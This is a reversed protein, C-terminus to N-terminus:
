PRSSRVVPYSQVNGRSLPGDVKAVIAGTPDKVVLTFGDRGRGPEGHDAAIAEFTYGRHGNWSGVGVVRVTDVASRAGRTPQFGPDDSFTVTTMSTATFHKRSGSRSRQYDDDHEGTVHSGFDADDDVACHRPDSVWYELRGFDHDRTQSVRFAFHHHAGDEIVFGVGFMRGDPAADPNVAQVTVSFTGSNTNGAVDTATCTVPTVGVPFTSGSTPACSSAAVGSGDDSVSPSAYAVVAGNASTQQVTMAAPVAISPATSDVKILMMNPAEQNNAADVSFFVVRHVGDGQLM